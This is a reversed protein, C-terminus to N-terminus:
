GNEKKGLEDKTNKQRKKLFADVDKLVLFASDMKRSSSHLKIITEAKHYLHYARGIEYELARNTNLLIEIQSRLLLLTDVQGKTFEAMEKIIKVRGPKTEATITEWQKEWFEWSKKGEKIAEEILNNIVVSAELDNVIALDVFTSKGVGDKLEEKFSM